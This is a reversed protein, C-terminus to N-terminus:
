REASRLIEYSSKNHHDQRSGHTRSNGRDTGQRGKRIRKQNTPLVATDKEMLFGGNFGHFNLTLDVSYEM